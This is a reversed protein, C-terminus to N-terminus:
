PTEGSPTPQAGEWPVSVRVRVEPQVKLAGLMASYPKIGFDPQSLEVEAVLRDDERRALLVLARSRGHLHLTGLVEVEGERRRVQASEFRIEPFRESHLVDEAIAADIKRKDAASLVGAAERGGRMVCEVRVSRADLVASVSPEAPDLAVRLRTVRLKLDHAVKSLLGEKFTFILCEADASGLEYM